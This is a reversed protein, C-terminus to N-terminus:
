LGLEDNFADEVKYSGQGGKMDKIEKNLTEDVQNLAKNLMEGAKESAEVEHNYNGRQKIRKVAKVLNEHYYKHEKM